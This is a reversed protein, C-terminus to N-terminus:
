PRSPYTQLGASFTQWDPLVLATLVQYGEAGPHAADLDAIRENQEEDDVPPPGVVLISRAATPFQQLLAALNATSVDPAVRPAGRGTPGDLTTDDVGCSLVIGSRCGSPLRPACEARWRALVDTSTDRRVGLNCGTLAQGRTHSHAALRGAWGLHQPDGVGAVFSDGLFCVRVDVTM